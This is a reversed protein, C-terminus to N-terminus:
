SITIDHRHRYCANLGGRELSGHNHTGRSKVHCWCETEDEGAESWKRELGLVSIPV